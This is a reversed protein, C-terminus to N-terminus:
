KTNGSNTHKRELRTWIDFLDPSNDTVQMNGPGRVSQICGFASKASEEDQLLCLLSVPLVLSSSEASVDAGLSASSNELGLTFSSDFNPKPDTHPTELNAQSSAGGLHNMLYLDSHNILILISYVQFRVLHMESRINEIKGFNFYRCYSERNLLSQRITELSRILPEVKLLQVLDPKSTSELSLNLSFRFFSAAEQFCPQQFASSMITLNRIEGDRTQFFDDLVFVLSLFALVKRLYVLLEKWIQINWPFSEVREVLYVLSLHHFFGGVAESIDGREIVNKLAGSVSISFPNRIAESRIKSEVAEQYSSLLEIYDQVDAMDMEEIKSLNYALYGVLESTIKFGAFSSLDRCSNRRLFLELLERPPSIGEGLCRAMCRKIEDDEVDDKLLLSYLSYLFNNGLKWYICKADLNQQIESKDEDKLMELTCFLIYDRFIVNSKGINNLLLMWSNRTRRNLVVRIVNDLCQLIEMATMSRFHESGVSNVLIRLLNLMSSEDGSKSLEWNVLHTLQRRLDNVIGLSGRGGLVKRGM